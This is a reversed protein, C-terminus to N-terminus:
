PCQAAEEVERRDDLVVAHLNLSFTERNPMIGSVRSSNLASACCGGPGRDRQGATRRHVEADICGPRSGAGEDAAVPDHGLGVAAHDVGGGGLGAVGARGAELEFHRQEVPVAHGPGVEVTVADRVDEDVAAREASRQARERLRDAILDAVLQQDRLPAAAKDVACAFEPMSFFSQEPRWTRQTSKSWSPRSSRKM